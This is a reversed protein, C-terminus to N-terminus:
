LYEELTTFLRSIFFSGGPAKEYRLALNASSKYNALNNAEMENLKNLWFMSNDSINPELELQELSLKFNGATGVWSIGADAKLSVGDILSSETKIHQLLQRVESLGSAKNDGFILEADVYLNQKYIYGIATYGGEHDVYAYNNESGKIFFLIIGLICISLSIKLVVDGLKHLNDIKM